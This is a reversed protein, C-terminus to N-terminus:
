ITLNYMTTTEMTDGYWTKIAAQRTGLYAPKGDELVMPLDHGPIIISGPKKKWLQWVLDITQKSIRADYTMDTTGSVLEARNKVADGTFIMDAREGEIVYLLCGPTHGPGLHCAIQPLVEDGVKVKRLTPWGELKEIYLEPVPSSGWPLNAAWRMEDEGIAIRAHKFMVWNISHDHHAHTLLVDTVDSTKLGHKALQEVLLNRYAFSGVDVLAVRGHGRLLAITSWGLGGHCVSKGPFGQVIVEIEYGGTKFTEATTM